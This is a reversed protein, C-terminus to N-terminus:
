SQDGTAMDKELPAAMRDTAVPPLGVGNAEMLLDRETILTSSFSAPFFLDPLMRNPVPPVTPFLAPAATSANLMVAM